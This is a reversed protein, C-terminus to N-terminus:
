RLDDGSLDIELTDKSNFHKKFHYYVNIIIIKTKTIIKNM